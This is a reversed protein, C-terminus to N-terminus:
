RPSPLTQRTLLSAQSFNYLNVLFHVKDLVIKLSKGLVKLDGGVLLTQSDIYKIVGCFICIESHTQLVKRSCNAM